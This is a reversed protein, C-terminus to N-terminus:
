TPTKESTIKSLGLRDYRFEAKECQIRLAQGDALPDIRWSEEAGIGHAMHAPIAIKSIAKGFPGMTNADLGIIPGRDGLRTQVDVEDLNPFPGYPKGWRLAGLGALVGDKTASNECDRGHSKWASGLASEVNGALESLAERHTAREVLMRNMRPIRWVPHEGILRRTAELIRLDIYVGGTSRDRRKFLGLGNRTKGLMPSLDGGPPTLVICAPKAFGDPRARGAHRHLRGIRQLLVDVPCLDTILLDADIDLSQELTQTGVLALGGSPREKGIGREVARDLLKRDEAAFRGHHLTAVGNVQFLAAGGGREEAAAELAKQTDLAYGVTNRVILVKAGQGAADLVRRAVAAPDDMDDVASISVAKGDGRAPIAQRSIVQGGGDPVATSLAPYPTALASDLSEGDRDNLLWQRQARSGLTASMLLAHGGVSRHNRLLTDIIARMYHDSAHVEDIVLLSRSLAAGRVHAHKVKLAALMAQDVTGVAVQAALYRNTQEAAWRRQIKPHDDWQTNFDKLATGQATGSQLYGPVALVAEPAGEGFFARCGDNIRSHIQLAASRTPLAFYLSDVQGAAYLACFRRFAAETKGSGTESELIVVPQDLALREVAVQMPNPEMGFLESFTQAPTRQRQARVDLGVTQICKAAAPRAHNSMYRDDPEAHYPFWDRNSGLWDALTVLGAFVHIFESTAPLPEAGPELAEAFWAQLRHGYAKAAEHPDYGLWVTTWGEVPPSPHKFNIPKGHHSASAILLMGLGPGCSQLLTPLCLAEDYTARLKPTRLVALTEDVHGASPCPPRKEPEQKAIVKFQFGTSLKGLDHLFAICSLRARDAADLDARGGARALRQRITPQELLAEFCAAVDACHHELRHWPGDVGRERDRKGWPMQLDQM